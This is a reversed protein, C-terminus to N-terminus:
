NIKRPPFGKGNFCHRQIPLDRPVNCDALIRYGDEEAQGGDLSRDQGRIHLVLPMKYRLALRIQARFATAQVDRDALSRCPFLYFMQTLQGIKPDTLSGQGGVTSM